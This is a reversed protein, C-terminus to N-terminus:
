ITRQSNMFGPWQKNSKGLNEKAKIIQLNTEVHFGCMFNNTLPYIHDVEYKDGGLSNLLNRQGYIHKILKKNAWSPTAQQEVAYRGKVKKQRKNEHKKQCVLNAQRWKKSNEKVQEKNAKYWEQQSIKHCEPCTKKNEPYQHLGKRCLKFGPLINMHGTTTTAM